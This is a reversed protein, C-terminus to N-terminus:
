FQILGTLLDATEPLVYRDKRIRAILGEAELAGLVEHLRRRESGHAGLAKSLEVKDLPRYQPSGLLQLLRERLPKSAM